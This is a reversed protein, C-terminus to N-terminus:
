SLSLSLLCLSVCEATLQQYDQLHEESDEVLPEWLEACEVVCTTPRIDAACVVGEVNELECCDLMAETAAM